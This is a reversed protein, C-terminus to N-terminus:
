QLITKLATFSAYPLLVFSDMMKKSITNKVFTFRSHRREKAVWLHQTRCLAFNNALFKDLFQLSEPIEKSTKGELVLRFSCFIETVRLINLFKM